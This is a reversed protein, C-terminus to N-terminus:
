KINVIFSRQIRYTARINRTVDNYHGQKIEERAKLLM